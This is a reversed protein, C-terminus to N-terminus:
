NEKNSRWSLKRLMERSSMKSYTADNINELKTQNKINSFSDLKKSRYTHQSLHNEPFLKKVRKTLSKILNEGKGIEYPLVPMHSTTTVTNKGVNIAINKHSQENLLKYEEKWQNIIWKPYGNIEFGKREIRDVIRDLERGLLEKTSCIKCARALISRLTSHKWYKPVFSHWNHYVGNNTRKRYITTEM